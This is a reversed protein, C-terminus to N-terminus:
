GALAWLTQPRRISQLSPFYACALSLYCCLLAWILREANEWFPWLLQFPCLHTVTMQHQTHPYCQAMPPVGPVRKENQFVGSKFMSRSPAKFSMQGVQWITSPHAPSLTSIAARARSGSHLSGHKVTSTSHCILGQFVSFEVTTATLGWGGGSGESVMTLVRIKLRTRIYKHMNQLPGRFVLWKKEKKLFSFFFLFLTHGKLVSLNRWFMGKHEGQNWKKVNTLSNWLWFPTQPISYM